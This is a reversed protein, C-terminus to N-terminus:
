LKTMNIEEFSAAFINKSLKLVSQPKVFGRKQFPVIYASNCVSFLRIYYIIFMCKGMTRRDVSGDYAAFGFFTLDDNAVAVSYTNRWVAQQLSTKHCPFWAKFYLVFLSSINLYTTWYGNVRVTNRPQSYEADFNWCIISFNSIIKDWRSFNVITPFVQCFCTGAM